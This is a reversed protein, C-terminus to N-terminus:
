PPTAIEMPPHCKEHPTAIEMPPHCKGYPPHHKGHPLPMDRPPPKVKTRVQNFAPLPTTADM